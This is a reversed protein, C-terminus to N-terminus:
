QALFLLIFILAVTVGLVLSILRWRSVKKRLGSICAADKATKISVGQIYHDIHLAEVIPSGMVNRPALIRFVIDGRRRVPIAIKDWISLADAQFNLSLMMGTGADKSGKHWEALKPKQGAQKLSDCIARVEDYFAREIEPFSTPVGHDSLLGQGLHTKGPWWTERFPGPSDAIRAEDDKLKPRVATVIQEFTVETRM